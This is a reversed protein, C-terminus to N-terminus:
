AEEEAADLPAGAGTGALYMEALKRVRDPDTNREEIAPRSPDRIDKMQGEKVGLVQAILPDSGSNSTLWYVLIPSKQGDRNVRGIVQEHVSYTWDLEGKVVVSCVEQLGDLGEGSRLSLILVQAEKALFRKKSLEKQTASESGTYMAVKIGAAGLAALWIDYVARHWGALIIQEGSECLMRVFEAVYPAKAIGTAQRVMMDLQGGATFSERHADTSESLILRALAAADGKIAELAAPDSSVAQAIHTVAPLERKVEARTHRVLFGISRLYSGFARADKIPSKEVGQDTSGQLWASAFEARTGLLGPALVQAINYFEGGMNFTPTASLGMRWRCSQALVEAALYRDSGNRRLAHCEDFIVTKAWGKLTSAWGHLKHYTIVLVDPAGFVSSLPYPTMKKAIHVNAQPLFKGLERKWQLAL